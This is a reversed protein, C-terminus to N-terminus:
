GIPTTHKNCVNAYFTGTLLHCLHLTSYLTAHFTSMTCPNIHEMVM